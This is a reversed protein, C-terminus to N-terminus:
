VLRFDGSLELSVSLWQECPGTATSREARTPYCILASADSVHFPSSASSSDATELIIFGGAGDGIGEGDEVVVLVFM